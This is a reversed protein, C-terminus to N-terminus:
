TPVVAPSIHMNEIDFPPPMKLAAIGTDLLPTSFMRILPRENNTPFPSPFTFFNTPYSERHARSLSTCNSPLSVDMATSGVPLSNMTPLLLPLTNLNIDLEMSQVTWQSPCRWDMTPISIELDDLSINAVMSMSPNMRTHSRLSIYTTVLHLGLEMFLTLPEDTAMSSSLVMTDPHFSPNMLANVM